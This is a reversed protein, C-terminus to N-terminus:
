SSLRLYPGLKLSTAALYAPWFFAASMRALFVPGTGFGYGGTPGPSPTSPPAVSRNM